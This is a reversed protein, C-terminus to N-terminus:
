KTGEEANMTKVNQNKTVEKGNILINNNHKGAINNYERVCINHEKM